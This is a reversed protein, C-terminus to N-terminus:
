NLLSQQSKSYAIINEIYVRLVHDKPRHDLQLSSWFHNIIMKLEKEGKLKMAIISPITFMDDGFTEYNNLVYEQFNELVSFTPFQPIIEERLVKRCDEITDNVMKLDTVIHTFASQYKHELGKVKPHFYGESFILNFGKQYEIGSFSCIKERESEIEAILFQFVLRYELRSPYNYCDIFVRIKNKKNVTKKLWTLSKDISFGEAKLDEGITSAIIERLERVTIDM